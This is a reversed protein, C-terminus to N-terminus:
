KWKARFFDIFEDPNLNLELDKNLATTVSYSWLPLWYAQDAVRKAAMEYNKKRLAADVSGNAQKM